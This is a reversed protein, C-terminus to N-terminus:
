RILNNSIQCSSFSFMVALDQLYKGWDSPIAFVVIKFLSFYCDLVIERLHLPRKLWALYCLGTTWIYGSTLPFYVQLLIPLWWYVQFYGISQSRSMWHILLCSLYTFYLPYTIIDKDYERPLYIPSPSAYPSLFCIINPTRTFLVNTHWTSPWPSIM